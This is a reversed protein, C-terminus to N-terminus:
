AARSRAAAAEISAWLTAFTEPHASRIHATRNDGLINTHCIDCRFQQDTVTPRTNNNM